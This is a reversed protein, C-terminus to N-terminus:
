SHGRAREREIEREIEHADTEGFYSCFPMPHLMTRQTRQTRPDMAHGVHLEAGCSPCPGLVEDTTVAGLDGARAAEPGHKRENSM